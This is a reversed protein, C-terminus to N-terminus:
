VVSPIREASLKSNAAIKEHAGIMTQNSLTVKEGIDSANGVVSESIKSNNSVKVGSCIVSNSIYVNDEIICRTGLCASDLTVDNGIITGDAVISPSLVALNDGIQVKGESFLGPAVEVLGDTKGFRNFDKLFDKHAKLYKDLTGIDLWYAESEKAFMKGEELLKPFTEREISVNIGEPIMDLFSDTLIYIGANIWHSPASDKPPKEVFAIVEGNEKTPVVGFTSPDEVHTLAITAEGESKKHFDILDTLDLDTLVDGNCVIFNEGPENVAYKIAGATGLPEKEVAYQLTVGTPPNEKFYIEFADPLYGLSLTVHTVGHSRLWSIQREVFPVNAIPLLPKPTYYTLPRMRTGEGGVLIVAKM